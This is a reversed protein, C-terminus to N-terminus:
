LTIRFIKSAVMSIQIPSKKAEVKIVVWKITYGTETM